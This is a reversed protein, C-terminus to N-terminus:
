RFGISRPLCRRLAARVEDPADFVLATKVGNEDGFVLRLREAGSNSSVDVTKKVGDSAQGAGPDFPAVSIAMNLDAAVLSKRSAKGYIVDARFEGPFITYEFEEETYKWLSFVAYGTAVALVPILYVFKIKLLLWTGGLIALTGGLLLALKKATLSPKKVGSVLFESIGTQSSNFGANYGM